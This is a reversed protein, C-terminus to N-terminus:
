QATRHPRRLHQPVETYEGEFRAADWFIAAFIPKIFLVFSAGLSGFIWGFLCGLATTCVAIFGLGDPDLPAGSPPPVATTSFVGPTRFIQIVAVTVGILLGGGAGLWRGYRGWNRVPDDKSFRARRVKWQITSLRGSFSDHTPSDDTDM